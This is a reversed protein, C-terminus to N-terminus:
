TFDTCEAILKSNLNLKIPITPWIHLSNQHSLVKKNFTFKTAKIGKVNKALTHEKCDEYNQIRHSKEQYRKNVKQLDFIIIQPLCKLVQKKCKEGEHKKAMTVM